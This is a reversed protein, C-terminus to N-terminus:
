SMASRDAAPQADRAAHDRRRRALGVQQLDAHREISTSLASARNSRRSSHLTGSPAARRPRRRATSPRARAPAAPAAPRPSGCSRRRRGAAAAAPARRRRRAPRPPAAGEVVREAPELVRDALHPLEAGRQRVLQARRQGRQAALDLQRQRRAAIARPAAGRAPSGARLSRCASAASRGAASAPARRPRRSEAPARAADIQPAAGGRDDLLELRDGCARLSQRQRALDDSSTM